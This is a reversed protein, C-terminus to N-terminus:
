RDVREALDELAARLAAFAEGEFRDAGLEGAAHTLNAAADRLAALEEALPDVLAVHPTLAELRELSETLAALTQAADLEFLDGEVAQRVVEHRVYELADTLTLERDPEPMTSVLAGTIKLSGLMRGVDALGAVGRRARAVLERKDGLEALAERMTIADSPALAESIGPRTATAEELRHYLRLEAASLGTPEPADTM